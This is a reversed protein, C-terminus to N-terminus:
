AYRRRFESPSYGVLRTFVRSFYNADNFGIDLAITTMTEQTTLLMKKAYEIRIKNIYTSVNVGVRKHFSHNIYSESCYCIGAIDTVLIRNMFNLRIYEMAHAIITDERSDARKMPLRAGQHTKKMTIYTMSLYEAIVSLSSILAESKMTTPVIYQDYLACAKAYDIHNSNQARQKIRHRSLQPRNTYFGANIAGLVENEAKIPIVYEGVGAHCMGFFPKGDGCKLAMPRMLDLCHFFQKKDSKIYMCFQNTHALYPQLAKDLDKDIPIFGVFDKICISLNYSKTLYDLYQMLGAYKSNM